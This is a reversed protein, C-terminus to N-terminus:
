YSFFFNQFKGPERSIRDLRLATRSRVGVHLCGATRHTSPDGGLHWAARFSRSSDINLETRLMERQQVLRYRLMALELDGAMDGPHEQAEWMGQLHQMAGRWGDRRAGLSLLRQLQLNRKMCVFRGLHSRSASSKLRSMDNVQLSKTRFYAM